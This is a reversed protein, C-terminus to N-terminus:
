LMELFAEIRTKLQGEDDASYGTSIHMYPIGADRAALEMGTAEMDYLTCFQLSCDIIGDANLERAMRLVDEKRGDNPTFIACQINLYRDAIDNLMDDITAGDEPVLDKYYRSGTCCEEGVVVAGSKEIINFLKWNPVAMPTGTYLIRKAGKPAVGEGAEVRAECEQAMDNIAGTLRVSDDMFAAQITLLCDLGSIPVPDAARTQDLRKLALRKQNALKIAARLSEETIKQGTLEEIRGALRKVENRWQQRTDENRVHPVDMVFTDKLKGFEEYAKKKGDCTNEGVVLDATEIYPCVSALKFGMFGKILPCTNRPVLKEAEEPAWEAGACLGVEVAGAASIIEEPVYLCFSGVVKKPDGAERGEVLERIRGSHINSAVFDLYSTSKPRNGQTLFMDGYMQGVAALLGDHAEVDMGLSGWMERYDYEEQGAM